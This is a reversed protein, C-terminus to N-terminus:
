GDRPPATSDARLLRRLAAAAGPRLTGKREAITVAHLSAAAYPALLEPAAHRLAELHMRVTDVDGRAVPGTLAAPLGVSGLNEVTGRILPLLAELAQKGDIGARELLRVGLDVMATLLNCAAAAGAHYLAKGRAALPVPRGGLDAAVERIRDPDGGEYFLFTEDLRAEADPDAFSQLPHICGTVAGGERLPELVDSALAGSFHVALAGPRLSGARAGAAAVAAIAGDPGAVLLRAAARAAAANDTTAARAGLERALRRAPGPSRSAVVGPRWGRERLRRAVASGVAGAGILGFVGRKM